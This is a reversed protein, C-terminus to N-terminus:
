RSPSAIDVFPVLTTPVKNATVIRPAQPSCPQPLLLLLLLACASQVWSQSLSTEHKASAPRGIVEVDHLAVQLEGSPPTPWDLQVLELAIIDAAWDQTEFSQVWSVAQRSDIGGHM